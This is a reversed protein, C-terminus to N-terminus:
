IRCGGRRESPSDNYNRVMPATDMTCNNCMEFRVTNPKGCRICTIPETLAIHKCAIKRYNFDECPCFSFNMFRRVEYIEGDSEIRWWDIFNESIGCEIIKLPKSVKLRELGRGFDEDSLERLDFYSFHSLIEATRNELTEFTPTDM